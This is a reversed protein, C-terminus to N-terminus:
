ERGEERPSPVDNGEGYETKSDRAYALWRTMDARIRAAAKGDTIGSHVVNDRGLAASLIERGAPAQIVAAADGGGVRFAQNLKAVGDQAADGAHLLMFLRGARAWESIKESGFILHGARLELGLRDLARRELANGIRDALDDPVTPPSDRFSRALAGRLKGRRLADELMRRDAGIWAGRGPLKAGLDPWVGGDPGIVLRILDDRSGHRGSLICRREPTHAIDAEPTEDPSTRM